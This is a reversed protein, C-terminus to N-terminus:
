GTCAVLAMFAGGGLSDLILTSGTGDITATGTTVAGSGANRGLNFTSGETGGNFKMDGGSQILVTGNGGDRGISADTNGAKTGLSAKTGNFTMSGNNEVTLNGVGGADRGVSIYSGYNSNADLVGGGGTMTATAGDFTVRGNGAGRGINITAYSAAITATMDFITGAGFTAVGTGSDRGVSFGTGTGSISVKSGAGSVEITGNSGSDRGVNINEYGLGSAGNSATGITDQVRLLGGDNVHMTGTSGGRGIQASAGSDARGNGIVDVVAGAGTVTAVAIIGINRGVAFRAENASSAANPAAVSLVQIPDTTDVVVSGSSTNSVWYDGDTAITDVVQDTTAIAM